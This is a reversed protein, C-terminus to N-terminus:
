LKITPTSKEANNDKNTGVKGLQMEMTDMTSLHNLTKEINNNFIRALDDANKNVCQHILQVKMSIIRDKVASYDLTIQQLAQVPSVLQQKLLKNKFEASEAEAVLKRTKALNYHVLPDVRLRRITDMLQQVQSGEEGPLAELSGSGEDDSSGGFDDFFELKNAM